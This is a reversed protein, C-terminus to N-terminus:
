ESKKYVAEVKLAVEEWSNFSTSHKANHSLKKWLEHDRYLRELADALASPQNHEVILGNYEHKIYENIAANYPTHTVVVPLGVSMAEAISLGYTEFESASVFV